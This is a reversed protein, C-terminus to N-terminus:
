FGWQSKPAENEKRKIDVMNCFLIWAFLLWIYEVIGWVIPSAVGVTRWFSMTFVLTIAYGCFVSNGIFSLFALYYAFISYCYNKKLVSYIGAFIGLFCVFDSILKVIFFTKFYGRIKSIYDSSAIDYIDKIDAIIMIVSFIYVGLSFSFARCGCIGCGWGVDVYDSHCCCFLFRNKPNYQNLISPQQTQGYSEM